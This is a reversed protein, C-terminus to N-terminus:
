TKFFKKDLTFKESLKDIDQMDNEFAITLAAIQNYRKVLHFRVLFKMLM